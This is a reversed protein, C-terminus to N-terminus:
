ARHLRASSPAGLEKAAHAHRLRFSTSSYAAKNRLLIAAGTFTARTLTWVSAHM